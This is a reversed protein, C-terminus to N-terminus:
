KKERERVYNVEEEWGPQTVNDLKIQKQWFREVHQQVKNTITDTVRSPEDDESMKGQESEEDDQDEGDEGDNSSALDSLSDGMAVMMEDFSKETERTKLGALEAYKMDEQEHQGAAEADTVQM